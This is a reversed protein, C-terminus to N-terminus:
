LTMFTRGCAEGYTSNNGYSALANILLGLLDIISGVPGNISAV